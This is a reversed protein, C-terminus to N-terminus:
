QVHTTAKRQESRRRLAMFVWALLAGLMAGLANAAVDRMSAERGPLATQVLEVCASVVIAATAGIWARRFLLTMLFGFPVFLLVNAPVEIWGQRFQEIQLTEGAWDAIAAVIASPGVPSILLVAAALAYALLMWWVWRQRRNHASM